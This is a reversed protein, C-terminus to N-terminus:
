YIQQLHPMLQISVLAKGQNQMQIHFLLVILFCNEYECRTGASDMETYAHADIM